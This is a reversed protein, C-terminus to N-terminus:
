AFLFIALASGKSKNRITYNLFIPKDVNKVIKETYNSM